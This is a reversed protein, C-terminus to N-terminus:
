TSVLVKIYSVCLIWATAVVIHSSLKRNQPRNRNVIDVIHNHSHLLGHVDCRTHDGQRAVRWVATAAARQRGAAAQLRLSATIACTQTAVVHAM